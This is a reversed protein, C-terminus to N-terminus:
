GQAVAGLLLQLQTAKYRMLCAKYELSCYLLYTKLQNDEDFIRLRNNLPNNAREASTPLLFDNLLM